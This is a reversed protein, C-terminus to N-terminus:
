YYRNARRCADSNSISQGKRQGKAVKAVKASVHPKSAKTATTGTVRTKGPNGQSPDIAHISEEKEHKTNPMRLRQSARVTGEMGLFDNEQNFFRQHQHDSKLCSV